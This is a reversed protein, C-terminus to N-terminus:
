AIKQVTFISANEVGSIAGGIPISASLSRVHVYTKEGAAVDELIYRGKAHVSTTDNRVFFYVTSGPVAEESAGPAQRIGSARMSWRNTIVHNGDFAVSWQVDYTGKMNIQLVDDAVVFIEPHTNVLERDIEM